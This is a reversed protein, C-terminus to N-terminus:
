VVSKRDAFLLSEPRQWLWYFPTVLFLFPSFHGAFHSVRGFNVGEQSNYLPLGENVTSWFSQEFVSLDYCDGMLSFRHISLATFVALYIAMAVWVARDGPTGRRPKAASVTIGTRTAAYLSNDEWQGPSM